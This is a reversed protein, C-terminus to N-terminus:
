LKSIGRIRLAYVSWGETSKYTNVLEDLVYIFLRTPIQTSVANDGTGTTNIFTNMGLTSIFATRIIFKEIKPSRAFVANDYKKIEVGELFEVSLLNSCGYFSGMGLVDIKVDEEFIVTTLSKCYQFSANNLIVVTKPISVTEISSESFSGIALNQVLNLDISTIRSRFFAYEEVKEVSDLLKFDGTIGIPCFVLTKKDKTYLVGNVSTYTENKEDVKIEILNESLDFVQFLFGVQTVSGFTNFSAPLSISVLSTCNSFSWWGLQEVKSEEEFTVVSLNSCERFAQEAIVLVNNPILIRELAICHFFAKAGIGIVTKPIIVDSLAWCNSFAASDILLIENNQGFDILSLSVCYSFTGFEIKVLSNDNGLYASKLSLCNFFVYGGYTVGAEEYSYGYTKLLSNDAVVLTEMDVNYAFAYAGLETVSAPITVSKIHMLNKLLSTDTEEVLNKGNYLGSFAKVGIRQLGEPLVLKNFSINCYFALAEIVKVGQPINLEGPTSSNFKSLKVARAFATEGIYNLKSGEAFNVEELNIADYFAIKEITEVSAPIYIRKGLYNTFAQTSITKIGEELYVEPATNDFARTGISKVSGPLNVYDLNSCFAFASEGIKELKSNEECSFSVLNTVRNFIADAIEVVSSMLVFNSTLKAAPYAVLITPVEAQTYYVAQDIVAYNENGESISFFEISNCDVFAKFGITQLDRSLHVTTLGKCSQFSFDGIRTVNDPLTLSTLKSCNSFASAGVDVLNEPLQLSELNRCGAFAYNGLVTYTSPIYIKSSTASYFGSTSMNGTYYTSTVLKGKYSLPLNLEEPFNANKVKYISYTDASLKFNFLSVDSPQYSYTAQVVIDDTINTLEELSYSWGEFEQVSTIITTPYVASGNKKVVQTNLITGDWDVFIVKYSAEKWKATFVVDSNVTYEEGVYYVDGNQDRWGDFTKDGNVLNIPEPLVITGGKIIDGMKPVEGSAGNAEFNVTFKKEFILQITIDKSVLIKSNAEYFVSDIEYGLFKVDEKTFSEDTALVFEEGDVVQYTTELNTMAGDLLYTVQHIKKFVGIFTYNNDVTIKDGAQYVINGTQWGNFQYGELIGETFEFSEGANVKKTTLSEEIYFSLLFEEESSSSEAETESSLSTETESNQSEEISSTSGENKQCGTICLVLLLVILLIGKKM